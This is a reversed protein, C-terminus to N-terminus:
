QVSVLKYGCATLLSMTNSVNKNGTTVSRSSGSHTIYTIRMM